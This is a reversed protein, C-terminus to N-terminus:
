FFVSVMKYKYQDNKLNQEMAEMDEHTKIKKLKFNKEPTSASTSKPEIPLRDVVKIVHDLKVDIKRM